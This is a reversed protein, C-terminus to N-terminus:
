SIKEGSQNPKGRFNPRDIDNKKRRKREKILDKSYPELIDKLPSLQYINTKSGKKERREIRKIFGAKELSAIRQQITRPTVGITDALTKKAPYPHTDAEWWYRAIQLIINLDMSSLGLTAQHILLANPIATWGAQINSKGWKEENAKITPPNQKTGKNHTPM